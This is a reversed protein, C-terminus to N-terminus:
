SCLSFSVAITSCTSRKAFACAPRTIPALLRVQALPRRAVGSALARRVEALGAAGLAILGLMDPPLGPAAKALDVLEGRAADLVGIRNGASDAFTVLLM